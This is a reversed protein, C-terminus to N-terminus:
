QTLYPELIFALVEGCVNEGWGPVCTSAHMCFCGRINMGAHM